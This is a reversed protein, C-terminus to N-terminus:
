AMNPYKLLFKAVGALVISHHVVDENAFNLFEKLPMSHVKIDEHGDTQQPSTKECHTALFIHTFNSLIAPNSSVKGLNEWSGSEFGTEELLERKAADIPEEGEDVMGGPIELTTEDVGHRYQEVLVVDNDDTLAIVNIWEPANLVYFNAADTGDDPQVKKEHLSFIPTEYVKKDKIVDWKPKTFKFM